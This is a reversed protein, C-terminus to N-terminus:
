GRIKAVIEDVSKLLFELDKENVIKFDAKKGIEPIHIETEATEIELFKEFTTNDDSKEGRGAVRSWRIKKDATICLVHSGAFSKVFDYDEPMRLGNIVILGEGQEVKKRLARGLIDNGFRKRLEVAMWQQDQKSIKEFFLGLIENLPDAFRMLKAGYKEKLYNAATDKGSGTEGVLGIIIRSM